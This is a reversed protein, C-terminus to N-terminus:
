AVVCLHSQKVELSLVPVFEGHCSVSITLRSYKAILSFSSPSRPKIGQKTVKRLDWSGKQAGERTKLYSSIQEAERSARLAENM